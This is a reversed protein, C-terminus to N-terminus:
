VHWKSNSSDPQLLNRKLFLSSLTIESETKCIHIGKCSAIAHHNILCAENQKVNLYHCKGPQRGSHELPVPHSTFSCNISVGQKVIFTHIIKLLHNQVAKLNSYNKLKLFPSSPIFYWSHLNSVLEKKFKKQCDQFPLSSITFILHDVTRHCGSTLFRRRGLVTFHRRYSIYSFFSLYLPLADKEKDKTWAEPDEVETPSPLCHLLHKWM